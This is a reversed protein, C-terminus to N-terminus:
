ACAARASPRTVLALIVTPWAVAVVADVLLAALGFTSGGRLAFLVATLGLGIAIHAVAFALALAIGRRRYRMLAIGGTLELASLLVAVVHGVRKVTAVAPDDQFMGLLGGRPVEMVPDSGHLSAYGQLLVGVAGGLVMLLGIVKPIASPRPSSTM